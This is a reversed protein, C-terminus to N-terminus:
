FHHQVKEQFELSDYCETWLYVLLVIMLIMSKDKGRDGHGRRLASSQLLALTDQNPCKQMAFIYKGGSLIQPPAKTRDRKCNMIEGDPLPFCIYKCFTVTLPAVSINVFHCQWPRESSSILSSSSLRSKTCIYTWKGEIRSAVPHGMMRTRNAWVHFITWRALTKLCGIDKLPTFHCKSVCLFVWICWVCVCVCVCGLVGGCGEITRRRM